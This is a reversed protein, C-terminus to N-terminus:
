LNYDVEGRKREFEIDHVISISDNGVFKKQLNDIVSQNDIDYAYLTIDNSEPDFEWKSVTFQKKENMSQVENKLDGPIIQNELTTKGIQGTIYGTPYSAVPHWTTNKNQDISLFLPIGM